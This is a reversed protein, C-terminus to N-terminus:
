HPWVSGCWWCSHLLKLGCLSPCRASDCSLMWHQWELPSSCHWKPATSCPVAGLNPVCSCFPVLWRRHVATYVFPQCRELCPWVCPMLRCLLCWTATHISPRDINFNNQACSEASILTDEAFVLGSQVFMKVGMEGINRDFWSCFAVCVPVIHHIDRVWMKSTGRRWITLCTHLKVFDNTHKKV